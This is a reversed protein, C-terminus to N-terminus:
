ATLIRSPEGAPEPAPVSSRLFDLFARTRPRGSTEQKGVRLLFVLLLFLDSDKLSSFGAREAQARQVDSIKKAIQVYIERAVANEPAHEYYIGSQLTRYTEALAGLAALVNEDTAHFEKAADLVTRALLVVLPQHEEIWDASIRTEPYPIQDPPLPPRHETEYRRAALLHPCDSPCDITVERYTGCCVPCIKEGAAPCFRKPKRQRCLPCSM